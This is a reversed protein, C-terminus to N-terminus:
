YDIASLSNFGSHDDYRYPAPMASATPVTRDRLLARASGEPAGTVPRRWV